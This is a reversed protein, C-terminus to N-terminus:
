GDGSAALLQPFRERMLEWKAQAGDECDAAASSATRRRWALVQPVHVGHGGAQACRCWLDFDEWGALRPDTSYGGLELLRSRRILAIGDIWNGSALREPEWPLSSVLQVPRDGELLAVMPYSFVAQPDGDLATVLRQVTSPYIGGTADLILLYEGRAHEVLANRSHGLSQDPPQRVLRAPLSPHDGLFGRAASVSKDSSANDDFVLVEIERYSSAAASELAQLGDITDLAVTVRPQAGPYTPTQQVSQVGGSARKLLPSAVRSLLTTPRGKDPVEAHAPPTAARPAPLPVAPSQIEKGFPSHGDRPQRPLEAALEVLRRGALEMPLEERVFDYARTRTLALREGDDLLRDVTSAMDKVPAAVFHEGAVLPDGDLCPESVVVCGNCIAELFRMWELASSTTRHLNILSRSGRLRHYKDTGTLFDPRPGIRPELPPILFQGNRAWLHTGLGAVIPDRRPDAAGLYLVDVDREADENRQWTDWQPSYGLQIHECPIGRRRLEAASSRNISVAAAFQPVLECTEEFWPTGPNETSLAITQARQRNNPMGAPNGWARFEHPIVVYVCDEGREPFADFVLEVSQGAGSVAASIASLLETMFHSGRRTSVFCLYM